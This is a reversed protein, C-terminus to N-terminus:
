PASAQKPGGPELNRSGAPNIYVELDIAAQENYVAMVDARLLAFLKGDRSRVFFSKQMQTRWGPEDAKMEYELKPEYGEVPAEFALEDNSEILGSGGVGELVLSWDFRQGRNAPRVIRVAIDGAPDGGVRKTGTVLDFYHPTGDIKFGYLTQRTILPEPTGKKKLWFLVPNNADPRHFEKEFFAAYEFNGSNQEQSRYYGEKSVQVQLRKGRQETLAFLGQQDSTTEAQSTGNPSLDTWSFEVNAGGIPSDNEDVVKGYFTIPMKWEFYFDEKKQRKWDAIREDNLYDNPAPTPSPVIATLIPKDDMSKALQESRSGPKEGQTPNLLWWLLGAIALLLLVAVIAHDRRMNIFVEYLHM